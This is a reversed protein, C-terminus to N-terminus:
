KMFCISIGLDQLEKKLIDVKSVYDITYNNKPKWQKLPFKYIGQAWEDDPHFVRVENIRDAYKKAMNLGVLTGALYGLYSHPMTNEYMQSHYTGSKLGNNRYYEAVVQQKNKGLSFMDHGMGVYENGTSVDFIFGNKKWTANKDASIYSTCIVADSDM